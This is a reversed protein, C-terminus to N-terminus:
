ANTEPAVYHGLHRLVEREDLFPTSIPIWTTFSGGGSSPESDPCVRRSTRTFPAAPRPTSAPPGSSAAHPPLALELLLPLALPPEDPPACFSRTSPIPTSW